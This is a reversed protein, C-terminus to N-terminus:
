REQVPACNRRVTAPYLDVLEYNPLEKIKQNITGVVITYQGGWRKNVEIAQEIVRSKSSGVFCAWDGDVRQSVTKGSTILVAVYWPTEM